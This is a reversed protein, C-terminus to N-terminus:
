AALYRNFEETVVRYCECSYSELGRGDLIQIRGRSYRILGMRQLKCATMTVSTRPVGLMHSLFEQTLNVVDAGVRDRSILLWRCLREEMSHFRNCAASQSTQTLLTHTYRLLLDQLRGGRSFERRLVDIRIRMANAPLQVMLRYPATRIGLVAAIGALGENGIMGVEIMLGDETTSLLSIMGNLPFFAAEIIDGAECLVKGQPLRVHTLSPQLRQYEERTLSALIGNKGLFNIPLTVGNGTMLDGGFLLATM